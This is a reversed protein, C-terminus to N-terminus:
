RRVVIPLTFTSNTKTTIRYVAVTDAGTPKPLTTTIRGRKDFKATGATVQATCGTQRRITAKEGAVRRGRSHRVVVRLGRAVKKRSVITLNRTVKLPASRDKGYRATFSTQSSKPKPVKLAFSGDRAVKATWHGGGHDAIVRVRKGARSALTLGSLAVSGGERRLDLLALTRGACLLVQGPDTLPPTTV